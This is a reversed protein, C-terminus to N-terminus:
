MRGNAKYPSKWLLISEVLTKNKAVPHIIEMSKAEVHAIYHTITKAIIVTHQVHDVPIEM